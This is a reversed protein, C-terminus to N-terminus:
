SAKVRELALREITRTDPDSVANRAHLTRRNDIFLLKNPTDWEHVTANARAAVFFDRTERALYDSPVMCGPDYRVGEVSWAVSLFSIGNGRVTFIGDRVANPLSSWDFHSVVTATESPAESALVIVEPPSVLHAGDSHLPQEGLGVTASLSRPPAQDKTYPRLTRSQGRGREVAVALSTLALSRRVDTMSGTATAWGQRDLDSQIAKLDLMM